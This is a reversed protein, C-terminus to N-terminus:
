LGKIYDHKRLFEDMKKQANLSVKKDPNPWGDDPETSPTFLHGVGDYIIVECENRHEDMNEKFLESGELPTVTDDKGIVIITPPTNESM